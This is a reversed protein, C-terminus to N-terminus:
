ELKLTGEVEFPKDLLECELKMKVSIQENGKLRGSNIAGHVANEIERQSTIGVTKLFKRISTNFTEENMDEPDGFPLIDCSAYLVGHMRVRAMSNVHIVCM